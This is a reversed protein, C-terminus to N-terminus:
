SFGTTFSYETRAIEIRIRVRVPKGQLRAPQFRWSEIAQRALRDGLPSPPMALTREVTTNGSTDIIGEYKGGGMAFERRDKPSRRVSLEVPAEFGSLDSSFPGGVDPMGMVRYTWKLPWELVAIRGSVVKFIDTQSDGFGELWYCSGLDYETQKFRIRCGGEAHIEVMQFQDGKKIVFEDSDLGLTGREYPGRGAKVDRLVEITAPLRWNPNTQTQAALGMIAVLALTNMAQREDNAEQDAGEKGGSVGTPLV